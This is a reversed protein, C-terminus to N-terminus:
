LYKKWEELTIEYWKNEPKRNRIPSYMKKKEIMRTFIVEDKIIKIEDNVTIEIEYTINLEIDNEYDIPLDAFFLNISTDEDPMDLLNIKKDSTIMFCSIFSIGRIAQNTIEFNMKYRFPDAFNEYIETDIEKFTANGSPFITIGMNILNEYEKITNDPYYVVRRDIVQTWLASLPIHTLPAIPVKRPDCSTLITIIVFILLSYNKRSFIM